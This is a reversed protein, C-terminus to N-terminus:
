LPHVIVANDVICNWNVEQMGENAMDCDANLISILLMMLGVEVLGVLEKM